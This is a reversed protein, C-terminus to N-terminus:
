VWVDERLERFELEVEQELNVGCRRGFSIGWGMGAKMSRGLNGSGYPTTGKNLAM